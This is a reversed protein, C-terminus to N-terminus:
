SDPSHSTLVSGFAEFGWNSSQMFTRFAETAAELSLKEGTDAPDLKKFDLGRIKGQSYSFSLVFQIGM